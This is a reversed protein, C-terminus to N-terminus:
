VYPSVWRWLNVGISGSVIYVAATWGPDEQQSQNNGDAAKVILRTGKIIAIVGMTAIWMLTTQLIMKPVSGGAAPMVSMANVAPMGEGTWTTVQMNIYETANIFFTGVVFRTMISAWGYSRRPDNWKVMRTGAAGVLWWGLAMSCLAIAFQRVVVAGENASSLLAQIDM